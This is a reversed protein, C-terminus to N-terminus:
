KQLYSILKEITAEALLVNNVKICPPKEKHPGQCIGLCVSAKVVIEDNIIESLKEEIEFLEAGGMIHCLTGSCITIETM